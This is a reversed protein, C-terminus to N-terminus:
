PKVKIMSADSFEQGLYKRISEENGAKLMEIETHTLNADVGVNAPDDQFAQRLSKHKSMAVLFQHLDTIAM